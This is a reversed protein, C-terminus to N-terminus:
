SLRVDDNVEMKQENACIRRRLDDCDKRLVENEVKMVEQNHEVTKLRDLLERVFGEIEIVRKRLM